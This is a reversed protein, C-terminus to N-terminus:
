KLVQSISNILLFRSLINSVGIAIMEQSADVRESGAFMKASSIHEM